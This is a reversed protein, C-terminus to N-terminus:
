GTRIPWAEAPKRISAIVVLVLSLALMVVLHESSLIWPNTGGGEAQWLSVGVYGVVSGFFVSGSNKLTQSEDYELSARAISCPEDGGESQGEGISCVKVGPDVVVQHARCVDVLLVAM